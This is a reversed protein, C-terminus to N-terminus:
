ANRYGEIDCSLQASDHLKLFKRTTAQDATLYKLKNTGAHNNGLVHLHM